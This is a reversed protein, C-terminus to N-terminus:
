AAPEEDPRTRHTRCGCASPERPVTGRDSDAAAILEAVARHLAGVITHDGLRDAVAAEVATYYWLLDPAPANFTSWFPLGYSRLDRTISSANHIKDAATVVLADDPKVEPNRLGEVYALKRDRWCPKGHEDDNVTDSCAKVMQRVPEGFQEGIAQLVEPGQGPAADEVADHLLAAIAQDESGGHELVLACVSMLHSFYPVRSGKRFHFRHREFAFGLADDFRTTLAGAGLTERTVLTPHTTTM